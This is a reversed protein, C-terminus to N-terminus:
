ILYYLTVVKKALSARSEYNMFVFRNENKNTNLSGVVM